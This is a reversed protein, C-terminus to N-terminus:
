FNYHYSSETMICLIRRRGCFAEFKDKTFRIFDIDLRLKLNRKFYIVLENIDLIKRDYKYENIKNWIIRKGISSLIHSNKFHADNFFIIDRETPVLDIEFM